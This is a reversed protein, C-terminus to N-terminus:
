GLSLACGTGALCSAYMFILWVTGWAARDQHWPFIWDHWSSNRFRHWTSVEWFKMTFRELLITWLTIQNPLREPIMALGKFKDSTFGIQSGGRQFGQPPSSDAPTVSLISIPSSSTRYRNCNCSIVQGQLIEGAEIGGLNTLNITKKAAPQMPGPEETRRMKRRMRKRVHSM